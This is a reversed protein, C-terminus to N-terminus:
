GTFNLYNNRSRLIVSHFSYYQSHSSARPKCVIYSLLTIKKELGGTCNDHFSFLSCLVCQAKNPLWSRGHDNSDRNSRNEPLFPTFLRTIVLYHSTKHHYFLLKLTIVAYCFLSLYYLGHGSEAETNQLQQLM